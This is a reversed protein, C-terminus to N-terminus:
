KWVGAVNIKPDAQKWTGGVNLYPTANKWVGGVRVFFQNGLKRVRRQRQVRLGVGPASALLAIEAGSLARTWLRIDDYAGSFNTGGGTPNFGFSWNATTSTTGNLGTDTSKAVGNLYYTVTTANRVMSFHQWAGSQLGLTRSTGSVASVGVVAYSINGNTDFFVSTERNAGNTGKDLLACFGGNYAAIYVWLSVTFNGAVVSATSAANFTQGGSVSIGYRGRTIQTTGTFSGNRRWRSQDVVVPGPQLSPCWAGILSHQLAQYPAIM